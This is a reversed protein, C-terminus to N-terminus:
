PKAAKGAQYAEYGAVFRPSMRRLREIDIRGTRQAYHWAFDWSPRRMHEHFRDYWLASRDAAAVLKEVHVRRETEYRPLAPAVRWDESELARVLAIVDEMALRTGSGIAFHATRLADGVLAINGTHWRENWVKPFRRWVSRNSILPHGDLIVAFIRELLAKTRAEDLQALGARAYTGADCETIFTSMDPAYRYHHAMFHGLETELFTLSLTDYRKSTGWWAFQTQFHTVSTGFQERHWDRITSNVGDAAIVLDYGELERRDKLETEYAPTLGLGALRKQLLTLLRLRGIASFGTGDLAMRAGQHTITLDSWTEMHPTIDAHTEPDAELLFDLARDSFVVGFGFTADPPNREVVRIEAEPRRLRILIAAYLGAPGAGAILVRV